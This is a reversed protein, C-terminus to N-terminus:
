SGFVRDMRAFGFGSSGSATYARGGGGGRRGCGGTPNAGIRMGGAARAILQRKRTGDITVLRGSPKLLRKAQGRRAPRGDPTGWTLAALSCGIRNNVSETPRNRLYLPSLKTREFPIARSTEAMCSYAHCTGGGKGVEGVCV